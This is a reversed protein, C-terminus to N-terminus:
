RRRKIVVAIGTGLILLPLVATVIIGNRNKQASTMSIMEESTSTARVSITEIEGALENITKLLLQSNGFSSTALSSDDFLYRGSYVVVKTTIDNYNEEALVGIYFPGDIDGDEKLLTSAKTNIKSYAQDSTTLFGSLTVTDRIDEKTLLGSAVSSVIFKKGRIGETFDSTGITPVLQNPYNGIFNNSNGEVVIGETVSVGYYGLLESFNSLTQSVYDVCIVANGGGTLYNKILTIEEKTYDSQPQYIYLLNCDEPVTECTLTNLTEYMINSDALLSSLVNSVSGEGHGEVVYIKPLDETTVYQIAADLKGEVNVGTITSQYTSYNFEQVIMDSYGVYKSRGNTENVVIFSDYEITEDTYQSAFRPNKVIDKFELTIKSWTKPFQKAIKEFLELQTDTEGLYYITIEDQIGKLFEKTEETLSYRGQSTLDFTLNLQKAALNIFLVLVIVIVSLVTAYAGGKFKRSQFTAKKSRKKQPTEQKIQDSKELIDEVIQQSEERIEKEDM